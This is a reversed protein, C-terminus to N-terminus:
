SKNTKLAICEKIDKVFGDTMEIIKGEEVLLPVLPSHSIFIVQINAKEWDLSIMEEWFRRQNQFSLSADPEDALMILAASGGKFSGKCQDVWKNFNSSANEWISNYNPNTEKHASKGKLDMSERVYKYWAGLVNQGASSSNIRFSNLIDEKTEIRTPRIAASVASFLTTIGGSWSLDLIKGNKENKAGSIGEIVRQPISIHKQFLKPEWPARQHSSISCGTLSAIIKLLTTKGCANEGMIVNLGPQFKYVKKLSEIEELYGIPKRLKFKTIM